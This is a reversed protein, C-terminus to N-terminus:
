RSCRRRRRHRVFALTSCTLAAVAEQVGLHTTVASCGCGGSAHAIRRRPNPKIKGADRASDNLDRSEADADSPTPDAKTVGADTPVPLGRLLVDREWEQWGQVCLPESFPGSSCPWVADVDTMPLVSTFSIGGDRSVTVSHELTGLQMCAWLAGAAYTLCTVPVPPTDIRNWHDGGDNSRWIGQEAGLWVMDGTEDQALGGFQSVELVTSLTRGGDTSTILRDLLGGRGFNREVLVVRDADTTHVALVEYRSEARSPSLTLPKFSLGGDDSVALLPEQASSGPTRLLGSLYWRKPDSPAVLLAQVVWGTALTAHVAFTAGDDESRYVAGPQAPTDPRAAYLRGAATPDERLATATAGTLRDEPQSASCTEPVGVWFGASDVLHIAGNGGLAVHPSEDTRVGFAELCVFRAEAGDWTVIGRNTRLVFGKGDADVVLQLGRPPAHTVTHGSCLLWLAALLAARVVFVRPTREPLARPPQARDTAHDKYVHM